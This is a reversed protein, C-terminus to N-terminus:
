FKKLINLKGGKFSLQGAIKVWERSHTGGMDRERRDREREKGGWERERERVCGCVCEDQCCSYGSLIKM